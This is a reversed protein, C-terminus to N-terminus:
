KAKVNEGVACGIDRNVDTANQSSGESITDLERITEKWKQPKRQNKTDFEHM